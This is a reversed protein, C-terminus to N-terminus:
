PLDVLGRVGGGFTSGGLAGGVATQLDVILRARAGLRVHLSVRELDQLRPVARVHDAGPAVEIALQPALALALRRSLERRAEGLAVGSFGIRRPTAAAGPLDADSIRVLVPLRAAAALTWPGATWRASAFPTIPVSGPAFLEPHAFGDIASAIALARNALLTADHGALPAGLDLGGIVALESEPGRRDALQYIARLQPNGSTAADVYSGAPQAVSALVLPARLEIAIRPAVAIRGDAVIVFAQGRAEPLAMVDFPATALGFRAQLELRDHNAPEADFGPEAATVRAAIGVLLVGAVPRIV